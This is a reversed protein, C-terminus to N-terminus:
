LAHTGGRHLFAHWRRDAKKINAELKKQFKAKDAETCFYYTKGDQELKIDPSGKETFKGNCIGMACHGEFEATVAASPEAASAAVTAPAESKPQKSACGAASMSVSLTTSLIAFITFINLASFKM